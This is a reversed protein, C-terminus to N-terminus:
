TKRMGMESQALDIRLQTVLEVLKKLEKTTEHQRDELNGIAVQKLEVEHMKEELKDIRDADKKKLWLMYGFCVSVVAGVIKNFLLAEM